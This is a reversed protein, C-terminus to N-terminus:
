RSEVCIGGKLCSAGCASCAERCNPTTKNAYARKCEEMLFSKKVGYDIHDWPLHEDFSRKRNAYFAPDIGCSAFVELWKQLSFFDQWGDMKMGRRHAELLVAGLRRDGRAFVAEMFSTDAEHWSPEIKKSHISSLLHRQKAHITEITDQPEWQFPTFPKPVFSSASISVKVSKGRPKNPHNYYADVVKQALDAIGEVDQLTETPLGIMFYLKITTWGGGFATNVTKLLEEETVNKNIVDRLRQTGAEPAFTLGSRRVAKIKKMLENSFGDVRLSPLSIGTKRDETWTMLRDLLDNIKSYDSTSLSSLSIEDYGTNECLDRCQRDIADISKERFPRYIFGAQCFRCGRICGRLVESVARDHVIEIYPVVFRDPFYSKDLDMMVRKHIVAPANGRPQFTDITGDEKYTVDYLSPVYVGSIQAAAALFDEKTGNKRKFDRYLEVVECDVEEGEGIFFLDVFDALPEPNCACPGGAVVLQSLSRRDSSKLPVGAMDLMNLLNTYSMEYQLTFGIIDFDALSDGSELAYLPIHNQRMQEEMDAWPAFVRECWVYPVENLQSYLIKMGLHSMGVEYIDPFCFAFRVEIDKKNKIVSNLEGGVYRGPKQVKLLLKEIKHDIM